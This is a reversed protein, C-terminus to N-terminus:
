FTAVTRMAVHPRHTEPEVVEVTHALGSEIRLIMMLLSLVIVRM